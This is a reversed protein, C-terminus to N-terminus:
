SNEAESKQYNNIQRNGVMLVYVPSPLSKSVESDGPDLNISPAYCISVM